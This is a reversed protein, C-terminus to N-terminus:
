ANSQPEVDGGHFHGAAGHARRPDKTDKPFLWIKRRGTGVYGAEPIRGNKAYKLVMRHSMPKEFSEGLQEATYLDLEQM